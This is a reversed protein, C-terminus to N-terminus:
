PDEFTVNQPFDFLHGSLQEYPGRWTPASYVTLGIGDHAGIVM